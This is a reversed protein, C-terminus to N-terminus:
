GELKGVTGPSFRFSTPATAPEQRWIVAQQALVPFRQGFAKAQRQFGGSFTFVFPSGFGPLHLPAELGSALGLRDM